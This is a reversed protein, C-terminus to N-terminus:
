SVHGLVPMSNIKNLFGLYLCPECGAVKKGSPFINQHCVTVQNCIHNSFWVLKKGQYYKERCIKAKLVNFPNSYPKTRSQHQELNSSKSSKLKM